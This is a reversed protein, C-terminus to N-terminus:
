KGYFMREAPSMRAVRQEDLFESLSRRAASIVGDGHPPLEYGTWKREGGGYKQRLTRWATALAEQERLTAPRGLRKGLERVDGELPARPIAHESQRWLEYRERAVTAIAVQDIEPEPPAPRRELGRRVLDRL